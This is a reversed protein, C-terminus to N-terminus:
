KLTLLKRTETACLIFFEGEMKAHASGMKVVLAKKDYFCSLQQGETGPPAM